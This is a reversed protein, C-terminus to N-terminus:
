LIKTIRPKNDWDVLYLITLIQYWQNSGMQGILIPSYAM